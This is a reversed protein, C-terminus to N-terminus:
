PRATAKRARQATETRDYAERNKQVQPASGAAWTMMGLIPALLSRGLETLEYEVRPPVEAYATRAVLGDRRLHGLTLTLMRQSITGSAQRLATYRMPGARLNGIVLVSWKDGVRELLERVFAGEPGASSCVRRPDDETLDVL